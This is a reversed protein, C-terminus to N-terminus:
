WSPSPPPSPAPSPSTSPSPSHAGGLPTHPVHTPITAHCLHEPTKKKEQSFFFLFKKQSFKLYLVSYKM